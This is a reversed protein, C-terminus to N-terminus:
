IAAISGPARESRSLARLVPAVGHRRAALRTLLTLTADTAGAPLSPPTAEVSVALDDVHIVIELLRSTLYDGLTLSWGTWPLFVPRDPPENALQGHLAAIVVRLRKALAAAGDAAEAEGSERMGVNVPADLPAKVWASRSYHELLPIPPQEARDASLVLPTNFVQRALHGALASVSMKPLASPENWRVAVSRSDIFGAAVDAAQLYTDTLPSTV